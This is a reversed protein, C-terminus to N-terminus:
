FIKLFLCNLYCTVTSVIKWMLSNTGGFKFISPASIKLLLIEFLVKVIQMDPYCMPYPLFYVHINIYVHIVKHLIYLNSTYLAGVPGWPSISWTMCPKHPCTLTSIPRSSVVQCHFPRLPRKSQSDVCQVDRYRRGM